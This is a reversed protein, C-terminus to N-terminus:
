DGLYQRMHFFWIPKWKKTDTWIIKAVRTAYKLHFQRAM